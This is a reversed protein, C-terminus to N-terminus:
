FLEMFSRVLDMSLISAAMAKLKLNMRHIPYGRFVWLKRTANYKTLFTQKHRPLQTAGYRTWAKYAGTIDAYRMFKQLWIPFKHWRMCSQFDIIAPNGHDDILINEMNRLDLHVWGRAHIERIMQELKHLFTPQLQHGKKAYGKLTDGEFYRYAITYDTLLYCEPTIGEIGQLASMAAFEQRISLRGMTNKVLWNRSSFDKIVLNYSDDQYRYVVANAFRGEHLIQLHEQNFDHGLIKASLFDIVTQM